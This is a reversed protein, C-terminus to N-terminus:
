MILWLEFKYVFSIGEQRKSILKACGDTHGSVIHGGFRSNLKMARELNVIDGTKISGLNTHRLTEPMTEVAFSKEDFEDYM